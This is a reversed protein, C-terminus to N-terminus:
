LFKDLNFFFYHPESPVKGNTEPPLHRCDRGARERGDAGVSIVGPAPDRHLRRSNPKCKSIDRWCAHLVPTWPAPSRAGGSSVHSFWRPQRSRPSVTAARSAAFSAM